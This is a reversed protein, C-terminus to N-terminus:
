ALRAIPEERPSFLVEIPEVALAALVRALLRHEALLGLRERVRGVPVRGRRRHLLELGFPLAGAWRRAVLGLHQPLAEAGGAIAEELAAAPAALECAFLHRPAGTADALLELREGTGDGRAVPWRRLLHRLRDVPRPRVPEGDVRAD